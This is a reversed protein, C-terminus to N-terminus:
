QVFKARGAKNIVIRWLITSPDISYEFTGNEIATLGTPMFKLYQNTPFASFDLHGRNGLYITQLMDGDGVYVLLRNEWPMTCRRGDHTPCLLAVQHRNIAASRTLEIAALLQEGASDSQARTWLLQFSPVAIVLVILLLALAVLSEILTVGRYDTM